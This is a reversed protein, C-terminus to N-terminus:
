RARKVGLVWGGEPREAAGLYTQDTTRCWLPVDVKAAPDDALLDVREGVAVEAVAAALRLVPLPCYLGTCDVVRAAEGGQSARGPGAGGAPQGPGVRNLGPGTGEAM